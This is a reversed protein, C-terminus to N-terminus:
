DTQTVAFPFRSFVVAIAVRQAFNFITAIGIEGWIQFVSTSLIFFRRGFVLIVRVAFM